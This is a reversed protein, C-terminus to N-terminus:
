LHQSMKNPAWTILRFSGSYTPSLFGCSYFFEKHKTHCNEREENQTATRREKKMKHPLEEREKKM